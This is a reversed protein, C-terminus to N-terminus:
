QSVEKSDAVESVQLRYVNGRMSTAGVAALSLKRWRLRLAVDKMQPMVALKAAAEPDSVLLNMTEGSEPDLVNVISSAPWEDRAPIEHTSLFKAKLILM